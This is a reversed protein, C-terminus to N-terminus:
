FTRVFFVKPISGVQQHDLLWVSDKWNLWLYRSKIDLTGPLPSVSNLESYRESFDAMSILPSRIRESIFKSWVGATTEPLMLQIYDIPAENLDLPTPDPFLAMGNPLAGITCRDFAEEREAINEPLCGKINELTSLWLSGYANGKLGKSFRIRQDEAWGLWVIPNFFSGSGQIKWGQSRLLALTDRSSSRELALLASQFHEGAIFQDQDRQTIREMQNLLIQVSETIRFSLVAATMALALALIVPM